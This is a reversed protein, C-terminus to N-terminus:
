DDGAGCLYRYYVDADAGETRKILIICINADGVLPPLASTDVEVDAFSGTDTAWGLQPDPITSVRLPSVWSRNFSSPLVGLSSGMHAHQVAAEEPQPKPHRSHHRRADVSVGSCALLLVFAAIVAFARM